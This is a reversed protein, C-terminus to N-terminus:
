GVASFRVTRATGGRRGVRPVAKLEYRGPSLKRAGLRGSFPVRNTGIADTHAFSGIRRLHRRGPKVVYVTFRTRAALNDTYIITVGAGGIVLRSPGLRLSRLVPKNSTTFTRDAGVTRGDVSTVTVRYHYTTHDKLRGLKVSVPVATVGDLRRPKSESGYKRSRGFQFSVSADGSNPTVQAVLTAGHASVSSPAQTAAKPSAVEYAGIDCATGARRPVGRQDTAPCGAGADIAASGPQLSITKTPGGNDQLPGLNPNGAAFSAPCGGGAFSLNHGGDAVTGLCDGGSNLYLLTDRLTAPTTGSSVVIGGGTGPFAGSPGAAGVGNGAITDNQLSATATSVALAGGDGATGSAPPGAPAPVPSGGAGPPGANNSALTSNTMLLVGGVLNIAGGNGGAGGPGLLPDGARPGGDGGNGTRNGNFTTDVITVTGADNAVGGGSGADGGRGGVTSSGDDATGATGGTGGFGAQNGSITAGSLMLDGDNFIAGGRGGNGGPGGWGATPDGSSGGSAATGGPGGQGGNGAVSNTVAADSLALSGFNLIAGGDAGSGGTGGITDSAVPGAAAGDPAHGGTVTLDSITVSAGAAIELARTGSGRADIITASEGAGTIHLGSVSSAISLGSGQGVVPLGLQYTHPGLTITNAGFAAPACDGSSAGPSDVDAIAESLSCQGDGAPSNGSTTNVVITAASANGACVMFIAAALAASWRGRLMHDEQSHHRERAAGALANTVEKVSVAAVLEPALGQGGRSFAGRHSRPNSQPCPNRDDDRGAGRQDGDPDRQQQAVGDLQAVASVGANAGAGVQARYVVDLLQHDIGLGAQASVHDGPPRLEQGRQMQRLRLQGARHLCHLVIGGDVVGEDSLRVAQAGGGLGIQGSVDGAEQPHV